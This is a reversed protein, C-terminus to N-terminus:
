VAIRAEEKIVALELIKACRVSKEEREVAWVTNGMDHSLVTVWTGSGPLGDDFILQLKERTTTKSNRYADFNRKSARRLRLKFALSRGQALTLDFKLPKSEKM